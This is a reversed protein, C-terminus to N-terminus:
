ARPPRDIRRSPPSPPTGRPPAVLTSAVLAHVLSQAGAFLPPTTRADPAWLEPAQGVSGAHLGHSALWGRARQLTAPPAHSARPLDCSGIMAGTWRSTPGDCDSAAAHPPEPTCDITTPTLPEAVEARAPTEPPLSMLEPPLSAPGGDLPLSMAPTPARGDSVHAGPPSVVCVIAALLPGLMAVMIHLDRGRVIVSRM